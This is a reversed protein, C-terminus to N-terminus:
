PVCKKRICNIDITNKYAKYLPESIIFNPQLYNYVIVDSEMIDSNINVEEIIEDKTKLLKNQILRFSNFKTPVTSASIFTGIIIDANKFFSYTTDKLKITKIYESIKQMDCVEFQELLKISINALPINGNEIFEKIMEKFIEILENLKGNECHIEIEKQMRRYYNNFINGYMNTYGKTTLTEHKAKYQYYRMESLYYLYMYIRHLSNAFDKPTIEKFISSDTVIDNITSIDRGMKPSFSLIRNLIPTDVSSKSVASLPRSSSGRDVYKQPDYMQVFKLHLKKFYDDMITYVNRYKLYEELNFNPNNMIEQFKEENKIFLDLHYKYLLTCLEIDESKKVIDVINKEMDNYHIFGDDDTYIFNIIREKIDINSMQIIYSYLIKNRM